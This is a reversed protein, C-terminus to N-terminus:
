KIVNLNFGLQNSLTTTNFRSIIDAETFTAPTTQNTLWFNTSGAYNVARNGINFGNGAINRVIGLPINFSQNNTSYLATNYRVSPNVGGNTYKLVYAYYGGGSGSFSLTSPLSITRIGIPASVPLTIGSMVLSRPFIGYQNVYQLDYFYLEVVDSTTTLTSINVTISSYSHVGTDYWLGWVLNSQSGSGPNYGATLSVGTGLSDPVFSNINMGMINPIAMGSTSIRSNTDNGLGDQIEQFNSTIGSTANQLNLLGPYTQNIQQGTLNSM